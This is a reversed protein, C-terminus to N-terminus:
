CVVDDVVVRLHELAVGGARGDIKVVPQGHGLVWAESRTQTAVSPEECAISWYRVKTGIPVYLNWAGAPDAKFEEWSMTQPAVAHFVQMLNAERWRKTALKERTSM